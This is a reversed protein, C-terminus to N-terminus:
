QEVTHLTMGDFAETVLIQCSLRSNPLASEAFDLMTEELPSIPELRDLYDEAVYVHCTACACAGGCQAEIGDIGAVRAAEMVTQGAEADVSQEIGDPNKFILKVM